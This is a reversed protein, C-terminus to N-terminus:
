SNMKKDYMLVNHDFKHGLLIENPLESYKCM